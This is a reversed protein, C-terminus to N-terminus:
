GTYAAWSEGQKKLAERADELEQESRSFWYDLRTRAKQLETVFDKSSLGKTFARSIVACRGKLRAYQAYVLDSSVPLDTDMVRAIGGFGFPKGSQLLTVCLDTMWDSCLLEFRHKMGADIMLDNLGMHIRDIQNHNALDSLMEVADCTEVLLIKQARDGILQAFRDVDNMSRFYPLMIATAGRSLVNEIEQESADHISNCRVFRRAPDVHKYVRQLDKLCHNTIWFEDKSQRLDKGILELDPGILDVGADNAVVARATDNTFFIFEFPTLLNM